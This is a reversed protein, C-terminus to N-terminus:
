FHNFDHDGTWSGSLFPNEDMQNTYCISSGVDLMKRIYNLYHYVVQINNEHKKVIEAFFLIINREVLEQIVENSAYVIINGFLRTSEIM